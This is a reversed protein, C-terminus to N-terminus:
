TLHNAKCIETTSENSEDLNEGNRLNEIRSNLEDGVIFAKSQILSSNLSINLSNINNYIINKLEIEIGTLIALDTNIPQINDPDVWFLVLNLQNTYDRIFFVLHFYKIKTLIHNM